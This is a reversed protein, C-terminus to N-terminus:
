IPTNSSSISVTETTVGNPLKNGTWKKFALITENATTNSPNEQGSLRKMATNISSGTNLTALRDDDPISITDEEIGIREYNQLEAVEDPDDIDEKKLCGDEFKYQYTGDTAYYKTVCGSKDIEIIYDLNNRGSLSLSKGTCTACRSYTRTSTEFMSDNIWEEMAVGYITKCETIFSNKKATNFMGMVNPLAIIVLIALIAIVALLEVLTFGNKKM